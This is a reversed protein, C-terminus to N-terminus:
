TRLCLTPRLSPEIGFDIPHVGDLRATCEKRILVLLRCAGAVLVLTVTVHTKLAIPLEEKDLVMVQCRLSEISGTIVIRGPFEKRHGAQEFDITIAVADVLIYTIGPGCLEVAIRGHNLLLVVVCARITALELNRGIPLTAADEHMDARGGAVESNPHVALFHTVALIGLHFGDEVESRIEGGTLFGENGHLHHTPAISGIKFVLIEPTEGTNCALNIEIRTWLCMYLVDKGHGVKGIVVAISTQLYLHICLLGLTLVQLERQYIGFATLYPTGFCLCVLSCGEFAAQGIGVLPSGLSGIEIGEVGGQAITLFDNFDNGLLHTEALHFDLISLHQDISFGNDKLAHVAVFHVGIATIHNTHLTHDLVDLHHFFEIDIGHAGAMIAIIGTPIVKAVLVSEINHALGVDFAVTHAITVASQGLVSRILQCMYLAVTIIHKHLLVMGADDDPTQTVFCAITRVELLSIILDLGYIIATGYLIFLSSLVSLSINETGHIVAVISALLIGLTIIGTREDLALIGM